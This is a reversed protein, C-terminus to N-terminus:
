FHPYILSKTGSRMRTHMQILPSSVRLSLLTIHLINNNPMIYHILGFFKLYLPCHIDAQKKGGIVDRVGADKLKYPCSNKKEDSNELEGLNGLM